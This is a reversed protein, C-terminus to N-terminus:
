DNDAEFRTETLILNRNFWQELKRGSRIYWESAETLTDYERSYNTLRYDKNRCKYVYRITLQEDM